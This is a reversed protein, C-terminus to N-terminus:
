FHPGTLPINGRREFHIQIPFGDLPIGRLGGVSCEALLGCKQYQGWGKNPKNPNNEDIAKNNSTHMYVHTHTAVHKVDQQIHFYFYICINLTKHQHVICVHAQQDNSVFVLLDGGKRGERGGKSGERGGKLGRVHRM